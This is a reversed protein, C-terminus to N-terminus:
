KENNKVAKEWKVESSKVFEEYSENDNPYLGINITKQLVGNLRAVDAEKAIKTYKMDVEPDVQPATLM